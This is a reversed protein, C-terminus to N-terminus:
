LSNKALNARLTKSLLTWRCAVAADVVAKGRLAKSEGRREKENRNNDYFSKFDRKAEHASCLVCFGEQFTIKWSHFACSNHTLSQEETM